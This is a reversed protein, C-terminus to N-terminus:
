SSCRDSRLPIGSACASLRKTRARVKLLTILVVGSSEYRLCYLPRPPSIALKLSFDISFKTGRRSMYGFRDNERNSYLKPKERPFRPCGKGAVARGRRVASANKQPLNLATRM